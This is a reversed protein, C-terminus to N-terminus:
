EGEGVPEQNTGIFGSQQHANYSIYVPSENRLLDVVNPWATIHMRLHIYTNESDLPLTHSPEFFDIKGMMKNSNDFLHIQAQIGTRTGSPGGYVRLAYHKIENM